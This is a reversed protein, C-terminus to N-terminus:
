GEDEVPVSMWVTYHILWTRTPPATLNHAEQTTLLDIAEIPTSGGRPLQDESGALLVPRRGTSEIGETVPQVQKVNTLVATPTGCIGRIVQAFRDATLQDLIIVSAEPGIVGCLNNVADLEGPGIKRFAMGHAHVGNTFSLDLTTLATPILLSAAGCSAVLAATTKSRGLEAAQDKLWTVAWIAGLILGPLVFPVLRRSAWPQDPAVAPRYLVTVIVWLAIMLPLAWARAAGTPDDWSILARTGRKALAALGLAGLLVTPVGLYWIVWYLSEEYYQQHGDVPLGALKQLEAVYAISTPITEGAVTQVLPRVAFGIFVATTLVAAVAPLWRAPKTTRIQSLKRRAAPSATAAVLIVTGALTAAVIYGLPRLSPAELDLYPRSKLYGDALGYGVGVILGAAFPIAQRCRAALLVGLFPVAPLIDSLGDVRVLITLGLALGGLAALVMDQNLSHRDSGSDKSRTIALSDALLCLGGFLLVQALPESFTGRSTYQEPLSLALVAAAAPAWRPGTLRAALGGFSLVACGGIVPAMVLAAPIGKFWIAAALLLPMGTMFQPVIGTGRPYFNSSAFSLGPHPGGFAAVNDPIPLYGHHAIWYAV